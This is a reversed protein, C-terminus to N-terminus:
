RFNVEFDWRPGKTGLYEYIFSRLEFAVEKGCKTCYVKEDDWDPNDLKDTLVTVNGCPCRAEVERKEHM